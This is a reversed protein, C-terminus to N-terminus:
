AESLILIAVGTGDNKINEIIYSVSNIVATTGRGVAPVIAYLDTAACTFMPVTGSVDLADIYDNDFVGSVNVSEIVAVVAHEDTDFFSALDAADEVSMKKGKIFFLWM